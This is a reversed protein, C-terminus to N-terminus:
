ICAGSFDVPAKYADQRTVVLSESIGPHNQWAVRITVRWVDTAVATITTTVNFPMDGSSQPGTGGGTYITIPGTTGVVVANCPNMIRVEEQQLQDHLVNAARGMFDSRTTNRWAPSMLSFISMVAVATIFMAIVAEVLSFGRNNCTSPFM